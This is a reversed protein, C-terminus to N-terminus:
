EIIEDARLLFSEPITLGLAKATTLNIVLEFKTPQEVPLDAPKAGRLIKDVYDGARRFLDTYSPGYSMLGAAEVFERVNHMTPLRAALALTNIRLRNTMTLPDSCVYLADARSKLGEFFPAIDDAGRIELVAFELGLTKATAQFDNLELVAEPFDVNAMIAWRRIGPVVDRMLELRKGVTDTQQTSLGTVNGGPRALSAVLGSAVPNNSLAFVIPIVSTARTAALVSADGATVVVDVKLRAFEAAVETARGNRAGDWRYEIAVTRGEIWGLERLRQVFAATWPTWAAASTTGLFGILPLKGQQQAHASLPWAAAGGLLTIFQRRRISTLNTVPDAARYPCAQEDAPRRDV